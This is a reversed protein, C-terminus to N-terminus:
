RSKSDMIQEEDQHGQICKVKQKFLCGNGKLWEIVSDEQDPTLILPKANKKKKTQSQSQSETKSQSQSQMEPQSDFLEPEPQTSPLQPQDAGM